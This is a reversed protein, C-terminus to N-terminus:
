APRHMDRYGEATALNLDLRRGLTGLRYQWVVPRALNARHRPQFEAPPADRSGPANRVARSSWHYLQNGRDGFLLRAGEGTRETEADIGRRVRQVYDNPRWGRLGRGRDREALFHWAHANGYVGGLYNSERLRMWWGVIWGPHVRWNELDAYIRTGIGAGVRRALDIAHDAAHRGHSEGHRLSRRNEDRGRSLHRRAGNYVLLLRCGHRRLVDVESSHIATRSDPRENLYRGWFSPVQGHIRGSAILDSMGRLSHGFRSVEAFFEETVRNWSSDVGWYLM